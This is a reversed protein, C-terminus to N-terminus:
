RLHFWECISSGADTPASGITEGDMYGSVYAEGILRHGNILRRLLYCATFGDLVAVTDGVEAHAPGLGVFGNMTLFPRKDVWRLLAEAYARAAVPLKAQPNKICAEVGRLTADYRARTSLDGRVLRGDIVIQDCCPVRWKADTAFCPKEVRNGQGVRPGTSWRQIAEAREVFDQIEKLFSLLSEYSVSRTLGELGINESSKFNIKGGQSSRPFWLRGVWQVKDVRRGYVPLTLHDFQLAKEDSYKDNKGCAKFQPLWPKAQAQSCLGEYITVSYDPVWSPLNAIRKSDLPQAWALIDTFRNRIMARTVAVYTEQVSKSYNVRIYSREADDAFGLLGFIMDRPDMASSGGPLEKVCFNTMAIRLSVVDPPYISTYIIVRHMDPFVPSGYVFRELHGNASKMLERSLDQGHILYRQFNELLIVAGALHKSKLRCDGCLYHLDKALFVEQLVWIRRWFARCSFATYEDTPFLGMQGQHNTFRRFLAPLSMKLIKDLDLSRENLKGTYAAGAHEWFLTGLDSLHTFLTGTDAGTTIRGIPGLWAYVSKAKAFIEGMHQVVNSRERDDKQNICIADVWLYVDPDSKKINSLAQALNDRVQVSKGNVSITSTFREDGWVYSLAIYAPCEAYRFDELSYNTTGNTNTGSVRLFRINELPTRITPLAVPSADGASGGVSSTFFVDRVVFNSQGIVKRSCSASPGPQRTITSEGISNNSTFPPCRAAVAFNHQFAQENRPAEFRPVDNAGPRQPDINSFLADVRGQLDRLVGDVEGLNTRLRKHRQQELLMEQLRRNEQEIQTRDQVQRAVWILNSNGPEKNRYENRGANPDRGPAWITSFFPTPALDATFQGSTKATEAAPTQVLEATRVWKMTQTEGIGSLVPVRYSGDMMPVARPALRRKATGQGVARAPDTRSTGAKGRRGKRAMLSKALNGSLANGVAGPIGANADGPTNMTMAEDGLNVPGPAFDPVRGGEHNTAGTSGSGLPSNLTEPPDGGDRRSPELPWPDLRHQLDDM